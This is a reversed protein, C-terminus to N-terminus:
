NKASLMAIGQETFVYPLYKRHRGRKDDVIANQSRLIKVEKELTANQSRLVDVEHETLQFMFEKPFRTINRKVQENLRKLETGYLEALDADLMVQFGRLTFIRNKVAKPHIMAIKGAM